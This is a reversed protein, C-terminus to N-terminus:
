AWTDCVSIYKFVAMVASQLLYLSKHKKNIACKAQLVSLMQAYLNQCGQLFGTYSKAQRFFLPFLWCTFSRKPKEPLEYCTNSM